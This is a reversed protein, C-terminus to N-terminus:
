QEDIRIPKKANKEYYSKFDEFAETVEHASVEHRHKALDFVEGLRFMKFRLQKDEYLNSTEIKRELAKFVNEKGLVIDRVVLNGGMNNGLNHFYDSTFTKELGDMKEKITKGIEGSYGTNKSSSM